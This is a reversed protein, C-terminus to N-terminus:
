RAMMKLFYKKPDERLFTLRVKSATGKHTHTNLASQQLEMSTNAQIYTHIYTHIRKKRRKIEDSAIKTEHEMLRESLQEHTQKKTQTNRQKYQITNRQPTKIM